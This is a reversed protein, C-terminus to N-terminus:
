LKEIKEKIKNVILNLHTDNYESNLWDNIDLGAAALIEDRDKIINVAYNRIMNKVSINQSKIYKILKYVFTKPDLNSYSIRMDVYWVAWLACFGEPDGIKKKSTEFIDLLQFSIKPLYQSPKLYQINENVLKFRALLLDDLLNPNYNFGPPTTSGHPEFREIINNKVDYILYNAHSGEPIEIGLPIIIFDSKKKICTSIKEFFNEVIFLKQNVWIIEFNLFESKSSMLIGISKYFQYLSKNEVFDTSLISCTNKHKNLLFILGLLIDLTNGTFTCVSLSEGETIKICIKNKFQPFSTLPCSINKNEILKINELISKKIIKSCENKLDDTTELSKKFYKKLATDNLDQRSCLNEWESQWSDKSSILRNYYSEIVLNLFEDKDEKKIMEIIYNGNKNKAFIDLKKMVLIDKYQKWLNYGIIFMFSSIGENNRITINTKSIFHELFVDYKSTYKELILHLPLDGHINWLNFNIDSEKNKNNILLNIVDFNDEIIAYHLATNGYIDQININANKLILYEIIKNQGTSAAYHIATFEHSFDQANININNDILLKAIEFEKLNIAIHLASEGTKCKININNTYKIIEKCIEYNRSFVSLHLINYGASNLTYLNAGAELIKKIITINKSELAYNIPTNNNKDKIDLINIGLNNNNADILCNTIDDYKYKIPVYLISKEDSDLIDIKAANEILIKVIDIQNYLIAYSILYTNTDDRINIIDELINKNNNLLDKLDSYKHSKLFKFLQNSINYNTDNNFKISM